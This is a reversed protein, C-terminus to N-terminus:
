KGGKLIFALNRLVTETDSGRVAHPGVFAVVGGPFEHALTIVCTPQRLYEAVEQEDATLNLKDM